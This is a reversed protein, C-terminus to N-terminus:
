EFSENHSKDCSEEWEREKRIAEQIESYQSRAWSVVESNDQEFFHRFLVSREQLIDAM